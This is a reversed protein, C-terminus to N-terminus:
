MLVFLLAASWGERPSCIGVGSVGSGAHHFWALCITSAIQSLANACKSTASYVLPPFDMGASEAYAPQQTCAFMVWKKWRRLNELKTEDPRQGTGRVKRHLVAWEQSDRICMESGM